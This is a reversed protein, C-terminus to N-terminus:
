KLAEKVAKVADDIENAEKIGEADDADVGLTRRNEAECEAAALVLRLARRVDPTLLNLARELTRGIGAARGADTLTAQTQSAWVHACESYNKFVQKIRKM